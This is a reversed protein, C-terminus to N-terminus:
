KNSGPSSITGGFVDTYVISDSSGLPVAFTIIEQYHGTAGPALAAFRTEWRTRTFSPKTQARLPAPPLLGHSSSSSRFHGGADRLGELYGELVHKEQDAPSSARFARGILRTNRSAM